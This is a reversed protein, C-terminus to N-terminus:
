YGAAFAGFRACVLGGMQSGKGVPAAIRVGLFFRNQQGSNLNEYRFAVALCREVIDGLLQFNGFGRKVVVEMVLFLNVQFTVPPADSQGLLAKFFDASVRAAPKFFDCAEDLSVGYDDRAIEATEQNALVIALKGGFRLGFDAGLFSFDILAEAGKDFLADSITGDTGAIYLQRSEREGAGNM